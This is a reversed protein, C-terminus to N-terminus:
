ADCNVQAKEAPDEIIILIYEREGTCGNADTATVTFGTVQVTDPTGTIAGTDTDLSLGSPLSGTTVAYSYPTQGGRAQVTPTPDAHGLGYVKDQIGNPLGHLTITPCTIEVEYALAV